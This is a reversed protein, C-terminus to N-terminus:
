RREEPSDYLYDGTEDFAGGQAILGYLVLVDVAIAIVSWVPFTKLWAFQSIINGFATLIGAYLAWFVQTRMIALGAFIQIIGWILFFWGWATISSFLPQRVLYSENRLAVLGDIINLAGVLVLMVAAFRLWGGNKRARTSM